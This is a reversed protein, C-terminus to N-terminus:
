LIREEVVVTLPQNPTCDARLAAFGDRHHDHLPWLAARDTDPLQLSDIEARTFFAFRGERGDEPVRDLPKRCEFLFLLWHGTGEYAREAIMAFLHLDDTTVVHGTEEATERVACAFPSEGTAMELKGGIPSWCDKNPEKARRILLQRGSSDHLFVLVSIKYPLAPAPENLRGM